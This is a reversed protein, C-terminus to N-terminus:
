LAVCYSNKELKGNNEGFIRGLLGNKFVRVNHEESLTIDLKVSTCFFLSIVTKHIRIVNLYQTFNLDVTMIKCPWYRKNSRKPESMMYVAAAWLRVSVATHLSLLFKGCM